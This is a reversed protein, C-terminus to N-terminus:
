TNPTLIQVIETQDVIRIWIMLKAFIVTVRRLNHNSSDRVIMFMLRKTCTSNRSRWWDQVM